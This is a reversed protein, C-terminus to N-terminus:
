PACLYWRTTLPGPLAARKMWVATGDAGAEPLGEPELPRYDENASCRRVGHAATVVLPTFPHLKRVM